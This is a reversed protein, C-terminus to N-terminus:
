RYQNYNDYFNFFQFHLLNDNITTKFKIGRQIDKIENMANEFVVWFLTVSVKKKGFVVNRQKNYKM